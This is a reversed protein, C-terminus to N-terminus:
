PIFRLVPLWLSLVALKFQWSWPLWMQDVHGNQLIFFTPRQWIRFQSLICTTDYSSHLGFVSTLGKWVVLKLSCLLELSGNTIIELGNTFYDVEENIIIVWHLNTYAWAGVDLTVHQAMTLPHQKDRNSTRNIWPQHARVFNLTVEAFQISKKLVMSQWLLFIQNSIFDM